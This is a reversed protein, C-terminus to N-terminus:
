QSHKGIYQDSFRKFMSRIRERQSSWTNSYCFSGILKKKKKKFEFNITAELISCKGPNSSSYKLENVKKRYSQRTSRTNSSELAIMQEMEEREIKEAMEALRNFLSVFEFKAEIVGDELGRFASEQDSSNYGDFQLNTIYGSKAECSSSSITGLMCTEHKYAQQTPRPSYYDYDLLDLKSTLFQSFLSVCGLYQSRPSDIHKIIQSFFRLMFVHTWMAAMLKTTERDTSEISHIIPSFDNTEDNKLSEDCKSALLAATDKNMFLHNSDNRIQLQTLFRLITHLIFSFFFM